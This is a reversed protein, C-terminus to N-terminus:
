EAHGWAELEGKVQFFAIKGEIDRMESVNVIKYVKRVTYPRLPENTDVDIALELVFDAEKPIVVGPEIAIMPSHMYVQGIPVHTESGIQPKPTYVRGRVLHDTYLKGDGHCIRCNPEPGESVGRVCPCQQGPEMARIAMWHGYRDITYRFEESARIEYGQTRSIGTLDTVDSDVPTTPDAM